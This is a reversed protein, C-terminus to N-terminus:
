EDNSRCTFSLKTYVTDGSKVVASASIERGDAQEKVRSILIELSPSEIPSIVSLFKVNKIKVVELSRQLSVELLEKAMQIICVGPTIPEGPFHVQYIVHLANLSLEYNISDSSTHKDNVIYLENRLKM